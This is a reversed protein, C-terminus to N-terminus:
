NRYVLSSEECVQESASQNACLCCFLGRVPQHPLRESPFSIQFGAIKPSDADASAAISGADARSVVAGTLVESAAEALDAISDAM